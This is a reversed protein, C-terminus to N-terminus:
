ALAQAMSIAGRHVDSWCMWCDTLKVHMGQMTCPLYRAPGSQHDVDFLTLQRADFHVADDVCSCGERHSPQNCTYDDFDMGVIGAVEEATPANGNNLNCTGEHCLGTLAKEDLLADTLYKILEVVDSVNSVQNIVVVAM